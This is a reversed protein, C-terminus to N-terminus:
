QRGVQFFINKVGSPAIAVGFYMPGMFSNFGTFLSLSKRTNNFSIDKGQNWVNGFELSSGMFLSQGALDFKLARYLYTASAYLMFDGAFQDPQYASLQQFGGLTSGIGRVDKNSLFLGAGNFKLNISHSDVSQAWTTNFSFERYKDGGRNIGLFLESGIEYGYRPFAADSLQDIVFSSKLGAQQLDVRPLTVVTPNGGGTIVQLAGLKPRIRYQNAVLGFRYEGLNGREGIEGVLDVGTKEHKFNYEAVRTDGEYLNRVNNKIDFYPALLVGNVRSLPQRLETRLGLANGFQIDNRWELGSDSLWPRRHGVQLQFGGIGEFGSSLALGFRLFHPGWKRENANVRVGYKGDRQILEHSIGDYERTINLKALKLNIEEASYNIGEVIDVQRRIEDSPIIGNSAIDVFGIKIAPLEVGAARQRHVAYHELTVSFQSLQPTIAAAADNGINIAETSRAFDMFSVNGLNPEILIDKSTLLAKQQEVNQETLINVMQQSVNILSSLNSRPLLPTGINVAIIVDAGMNRAIDVPLNRVLGGDVLLKGDLEVPSFVGPAAMSARIALHLPGKDFVVMKGSELNTAVARFPIPLDDFAVDSKLHATWNHFLELFQTAQVAGTPLRVGDASLGMTAGLPYQKDEERLAHPLYRREVRDLAIDNLKLKILREEIEKASLGSAYLGGVVAGMSTGAICDIPIRLAELQKLVGIHAFGRAGGGSLVLCIKPHAKNPSSSLHSALSQLRHQVTQTTLTTPVIPEASSAASEQAFTPAAALLTYICLLYILQTPWQSRQKVLKQSIRVLKQAQASVQSHLLDTVTFTRM